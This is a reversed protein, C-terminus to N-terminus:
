KPAIGALLVLPDDDERVISDQMLLGLDAIARGHPMAVSLNDGPREKNCPWTTRARYWGGSGSGGGEDSAFRGRMQEHDLRLVLTGYGTERSGMLLGQHAPALPFYGWGEPKQARISGFQSHVKTSSFLDIGCSWLVSYGEYGHALGGGFCKDYVGSLESSLPSWKGADELEGTATALLAAARM